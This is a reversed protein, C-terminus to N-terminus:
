QSGNGQLKLQTASKGENGYKLATTCGHQHAQTQNQLPRCDNSAFYQFNRLTTNQKNVTPHLVPSCMVMVQTLHPTQM